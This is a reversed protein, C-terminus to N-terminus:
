SVANESTTPHEHVEHSLSHEIAEQRDTKTPSGDVPFMM